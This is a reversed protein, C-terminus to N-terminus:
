QPRAIVLTWYMGFNATESRVNAVGLETANAKMLNACHGPSNLWGQIVSDATPYGAAINEGLSSWKYGAKSVREGLSSGNAGTHSFFNNTAMDTSHSFAANFLKENWQLEGAADFFTTGCMRSNARAQNVLNLVEQQSNRSGGNGPVPPNSPM